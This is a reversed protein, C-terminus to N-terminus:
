ASAPKKSLPGGPIRGDPGQEGNTRWRGSLDNVVEEIM